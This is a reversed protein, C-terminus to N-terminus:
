AQEDITMVEGEEIQKEVDQTFFLQTVKVWNNKVAATGASFESAM